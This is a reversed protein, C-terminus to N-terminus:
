ASRPDVQSTFAGLPLGYPILDVRNEFPPAVRRRGTDREGDHQLAHASILAVLSEASDVEQGGAPV